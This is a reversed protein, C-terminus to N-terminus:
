FDTMQLRRLVPLGGITQYFYVYKENASLQIDYQSNAPILKHQNQGNFDKIRITGFVNEWLVNDSLWNPSGKKEALALSGSGLSLHISYTNKYNTDLVFIQNVALTALPPLSILESPRVGKISSMNNALTTVDEPALVLEGEDVLILRGDGGVSISNPHKELYISFYDRFAPNALKFRRLANSDSDDASNPKSGVLLPAEELSNITTADSRWVRLKHNDYLAVYKYGDHKSEFAELFVPGDSRIQEFEVSHNKIFDYVVVSFKFDAEAPALQTFVVQDRNGIRYDTVGSAMKIPLKPRDLNIRYLDQGSLVYITKGSDGGVKVQDFLIGPYDASLDVVHNRNHLGLLYMKNSTVDRFFMTDNALNWDYFRLDQQSLFSPIATALDLTQYSPKDGRLDVLEYLNPALHNLLWKRDPSAYSSLLNQYTKVTAVRKIKPVLRADVWWITRSKVPAVMQWPYFGDRGVGINYNGSVVSARGNSFFPLAQNNISVNSGAPVTSIQIMSAPSLSANRLDIQYGAVSALAFTFIVTFMTVFLTLRLVLNLTFFKHKPMDPPM